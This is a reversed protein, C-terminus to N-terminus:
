AARRSRWATRIVWFLGVVTGILGGLYSFNHMQGARAFAVPNSVDWGEMFWPLNDPTFTAYAVALAGLGILLTVCVVIVAATLFARVFARDDKIFLAAIYIPLGLILGIWWSALVGIWSAGARTWAEAPFQFQLFKFEHFYGPAVTYSLQNHVAGYLAALLCSIALLVPLYLLRKM